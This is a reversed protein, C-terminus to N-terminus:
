TAPGRLLAAFAKPTEIRIPQACLKAHLSKMALLEPNSTVIWDVCLAVALGCILAVDDVGGRYPDVLKARQEEYFNSLTNLERLGECYTNVTNELDFTIEEKRHLAQLTASTMNLVEVPILLNYVGDAALRLLNISDGQGSNQLFADVLVGADLMADTMPAETVQM